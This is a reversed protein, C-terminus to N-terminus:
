SGCQGEHHFLVFTVSDLMAQRKETELPETYLLVVYCSM